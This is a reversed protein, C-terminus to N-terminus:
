NPAWLHPFVTSYGPNSPHAETEVRRSLGLIVLDIDIFIILTVFSCQLRPTSPDLCLNM